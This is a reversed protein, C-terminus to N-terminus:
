EGLDMVQGGTLELLEQASLRFVARPTGGAAWIQDYALLDRDIITRMPRLHGVPPVGGIAFGTAERVQEASAKQVKSGLEDRLKEESVQNAGSAIVLIPEDGLLFILCKAIQAVSCGLAAAAERSTRTSVELEVVRDQMGFASLARRVREVAASISTGSFSM